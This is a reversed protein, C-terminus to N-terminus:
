AVPQWGSPDLGWPSETAALSGLLAGDSARAASISFIGDDVYRESAIRTGDPSWAPRSADGGPLAKLGAGTRGVRFLSEPEGAARRASFALAAGDPSWSPHAVEALTGTSSLVAKGSGDLAMTCLLPRGGSRCVWAIRGDAAVDPAGDWGPSTTLRTLGGGSTSVSYVDGSGGQPGNDQVFVLRTGDPTFVPNFRRADGRGVQRLGSGDANVVYLARGTGGSTAPGDFALRRGDRSWAINAPGAVTGTSIASQRGDPAITGISTDAMPFVPPHALKGNAGPFAAQAPAAAALALGSALVASLLRPKSTL